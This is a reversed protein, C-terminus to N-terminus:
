SVRLFLTGKWQRNISDAISGMRRWTGSTPTSGATIWSTHSLDTNVTGTSQRLFGPYHYGSLSGSITGNQVFTQTSFSTLSLFAYTGVSGTASGAIQNQLSSADFPQTQTTGNNYTLTTGSMTMAM